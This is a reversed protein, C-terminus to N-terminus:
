VAVSGFRADGGLRAAIAQVIPWPDVSGCTFVDVFAAGEEPWTHISAHSEALVLFATVGQPAFHHRAARVVTAGGQECAEVLTSLLAGADDLMERDADTVDAVCHRRVPAPPM